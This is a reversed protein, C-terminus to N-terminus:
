PSCCTGRRVANAVKVRASDVQGAEDVGASSGIETGTVHGALLEGSRFCVVPGPVDDVSRQPSGTAGSRFHIAGIEYLAISKAAPSSEGADGSGDSRVTSSGAVIQVVEGDIHLITGTVDTGDHYAVREASAGARVSTVLFASLIVRRLLM